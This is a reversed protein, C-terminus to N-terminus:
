TAPSSSRSCTSGPWGTPSYDPAGAALEHFTRLGEGRVQDLFSGNGPLRREPVTVAREGPELVEGESDADARDRSKGVWQAPCDHDTCRADRREEVALVRDCRPAEDLLGVSALDVLPSAVLQHARGVSVQEIDDGGGTRQVPQQRRAAEEAVEVELQVRVDFARGLGAAAGDDHGRVEAM